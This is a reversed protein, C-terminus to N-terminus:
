EEVFLSFGPIMCIHDMGSCLMKTLLPLYRLDRSTRFISFLREQSGAVGLRLERSTPLVPSFSMRFAVALAIIDYSSTQRPFCEHPHWGASTTEGVCLERPPAGDVRQPRKAV